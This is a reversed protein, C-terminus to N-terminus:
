GAIDDPKGIRGLSNRRRSSASPVRDRGSARLGESESMDPDLSNVRIKRRGLGKNSMVRLLACVGSVEGEKRSSQVVIAV